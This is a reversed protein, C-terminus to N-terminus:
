VIANETLCIANETLHVGTETLHIGTETLHIGTETSHIGTETLRIANETKLVHRVSQCNGNGVLGEYPYNNVHDWGAQDQYFWISISFCNEKNAFNNNLFDFQFM